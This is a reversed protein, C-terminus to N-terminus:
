VSRAGYVAPVPDSTVTPQGKLELVKPINFENDPTTAYDPVVQFPPDARTLLHAKALLATYSLLM